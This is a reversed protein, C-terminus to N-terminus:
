CEQVVKYSHHPSVDLSCLGTSSMRTGLTNANLPYAFGDRLSLAIAHPLGLLTHAKTDLFAM